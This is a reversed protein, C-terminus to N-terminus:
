SDIGSLKGIYDVFALLTADKLAPDINKEQFQILAAAVADAVPIGASYDTLLKNIIPLVEKINTEAFGSSKVADYVAQLIQAIQQQTYVTKLLSIIQMPLTIQGQCVYAVAVFVFVAAYIKGRTSLM